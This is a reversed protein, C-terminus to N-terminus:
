SPTTNHNDQESTNTNNTTNNSTNKKNTTTNTQPTDGIKESETKQLHCRNCTLRFAFNLNKCKACVWDGPREMFPKHKKREIGSTSTNLQFQPFPKKDNTNNINTSSNGYVPTMTTIGKHVLVPFPMYQSNLSFNNHGQLKPPTTGIAFPFGFKTNIQPQATTGLPTKSGTTEPNVIKNNSTNNKNTSNNNNSNNNNNNNNTDVKFDKEQKTNNTNINNNNTNNNNDDLALHHHYLNVSSKQHISNYQYVPIFSDPINNYIYPITPINPSNPHHYINKNNININNNNILTEKDIYNNSKSYDILNKDMMESLYKNHSGNYYSCLPSSMKRNSINKSNTNNYNLFNVNSDTRYCKTIPTSSKDYQNIATQYKNITTKDDKIDKDQHRPSYTKKYGLCEDNDNSGQNSDERSIKDSNECNTQQSQIETSSHSPSKQLSLQNHREPSPSEHTSQM